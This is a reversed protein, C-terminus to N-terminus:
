KLPYYANLQAYDKGPSVNFVVIGRKLGERAITDNCMEYTDRLSTRVSEFNQRDTAGAIELFARIPDRMTSNFWQTYQEM